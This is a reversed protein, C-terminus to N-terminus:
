YGCTNYAPVTNDTTKTKLVMCGKITTIERFERFAVAAFSIYAIFFITNDTLM